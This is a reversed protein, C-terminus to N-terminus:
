QKKIVEKFNKLAELENINKQNDTELKLIKENSKKIQENLKDELDKKIKEIEEKNKNSLDIKEKDFNNKINQIEIENKNLLVQNEGQLKNLLIEKENLNQKLKQYETNHKKNLNEIEKKQSENLEIKEKKFNEIEKKQSENLEIKEKKFNEIEKDKATIKNKLTDSKSKLDDIEKKYGFISGVKIYLSDKIKNRFIYTLILITLILIIFIIIFIPVDRKEEIIEKCVFMSDKIIVSSDNNLLKITDNIVPYLVSNGNEFKLKYYKDDFFTFYLENNESTDKKFDKFDYKEKYNDKNLFMVPYNDLCLRFNQDIKSKDFYKDSTEFYTQSNWIQGSKTFNYYFYEILDSDKSITFNSFIDFNYEIKNVFNVDNEDINAYELYQLFNSKDSYSKFFKFSDVQLFYLQGVKVFYDENVYQLSFNAKVKICNQSYM